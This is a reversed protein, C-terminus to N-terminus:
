FHEPSLFVAFDTEFLDESPFEHMNCTKSKWGADANGHERIM